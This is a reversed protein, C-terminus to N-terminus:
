GGTVVAVDYSVQASSGGRLEPVGRAVLPRGQELDVGEALVRVQDDCPVRGLPRDGVTVELPEPGLCRAVLTAAPVGAVVNQPVEPQGQGTLRQVVRTGAPAPVPEVAPLVVAPRGFAATGVSGSAALQDGTWM